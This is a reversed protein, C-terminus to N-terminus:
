GVEASGATPSDAGAGFCISELLVKTRGARYLNTLEFDAVDGSVTLVIRGCHFFWIDLYSNSYVQIQRVQRLNVVNNSVGLFRFTYSYGSVKGPHIVYKTNKIRRYDLGVKVIQVISFPVAVVLGITLLPMWDRDAVVLVVLALVVVPVIIAWPVYKALLARPSSQIVIPFTAQEQEAVEAPLAVPKPEPAPLTMAGGCAPCNATKGLAEPPVKLARKCHPCNVKLQSM